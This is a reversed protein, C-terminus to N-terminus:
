FNRQRVTEFIVVAAAVSANLSNLQGFQPIYARQSCLDLINKRVGIGENGVILALPKKLNMKFINEANRQILAITAIEKQNLIEFFPELREHLFFNLHFLAGASTKVVTENLQATGKQALLISSVGAIEASRIIAGLNHPDQIQDLILYFPNKEKEVTASLQNISHTKLSIIKAAIGQHVVPGSLKQIENKSCSKIQVSKEAALKTILHIIKGQAKDDLWIEEIEQNSRLAEFVPQRGYIRLNQNM